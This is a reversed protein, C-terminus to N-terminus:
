CVTGTSSNDCSEVGLALWASIRRFIETTVAVLEGIGCGFAITGFLGSWVPIRVGVEVEGDDCVISVEKIVSEMDVMLVVSVSVASSVIGDVETAVDWVPRNSVSM